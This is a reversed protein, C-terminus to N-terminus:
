TPDYFGLVTVTITGASVFDVQQSTNTSIVQNGTPQGNTAQNQAINVAPMGSGTIKYTLSSSAGSGHANINVTTCTPPIGYSRMSTSAGPNTLTPITADNFTWWNDSMQFGTINGVSNIFISGVYRYQTTGAPLTPSTFSLSAVAGVTVTGTADCVIYLAYLTSNTVGSGTDLGNIGTVALNITKAFATLSTGQVSVIDASIDVKSNPAGANQKVVLKAKIANGFGFSSPLPRNAWQWFANDAGAPPANGLNGDQLSMFWQLASAGGAAGQVVSGTYYTTSSDWEPIGMQYLYSNMYQSVLCFGNMDEIYAAKDGTVVATTWGDIWASLAQIIAPDQSTQPTGAQKSGFQGFNTSAGSLGFPICTKRALKAM